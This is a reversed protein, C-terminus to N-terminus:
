AHRVDYLFFSFFYQNPVSLRDLPSRKLQGLSADMHYGLSPTAFIQAISFAVCQLPM